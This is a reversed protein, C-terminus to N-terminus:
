LDDAQIEDGQAPRGGHGAPVMLAKLQPSQFPTLEVACHVSAKAWREYQLAQDPTSFRGGNIESRPV